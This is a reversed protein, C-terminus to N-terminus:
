KNWGLRQAYTMDKDDDKAEPEAAARKAARLVTGDELRRQMAAYAEATEDIDVILGPEAAAHEIEDALRAISQSGEVGAMADLLPRCADPARKREEASPAYWRLWAALATRINRLTPM